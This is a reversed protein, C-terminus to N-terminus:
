MGSWWMVVDDGWLISDVGDEELGMGGIVTGIRGSGCKM